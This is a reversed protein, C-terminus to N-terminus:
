SISLYNQLLIFGLNTTETKLFFVHFNANLEFLQETIHRSFVSLVTKRVFLNLLKKKWTLKRRIEISWEFYLKEWLCFVLESCSIVTQLLSWFWVSSCCLRSRKWYFSGNIWFCCLYYRRFCPKRSLKVHFITLKGDIHMTFYSHHSQYRCRHAIVRSRWVRGRDVHVTQESGQKRRVHMSTRSFVWWRQILLPRPIYSTQRLLKPCSLNPM